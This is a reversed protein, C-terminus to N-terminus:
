CFYYKKVTERLTNVMRIPSNVYYIFANAYNSGVKGSGM